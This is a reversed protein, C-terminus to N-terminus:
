KDDGFLEEVTLGAGGALLTKNRLYPNNWHMICDKALRRAAKRWKNLELRRGEALNYAIHLEHNDDKGCTHVGKLMPNSCQACYHKNNDIIGAGQQQKSIFDPIHKDEEDILHELTTFWLHMNQDNHSGGQNRAQMTGTWASRMLKLVEKLEQKNM